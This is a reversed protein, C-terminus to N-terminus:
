LTLTLSIGVTNNDSTFPNFKFHHRIYKPPRKLENGIFYLVIGVPVMTYGIIKQEKIKQQDYHNNLHICKDWNYGSYLLAGGIGISVLGTNQIITGSLSHRSKQQSFSSTFLLFFVMM